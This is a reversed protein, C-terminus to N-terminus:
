GDGKKLCLKLPSLIFPFFISISDDRKFAQFGKNTREDPLVFRELTIASISGMNASPNQLRM